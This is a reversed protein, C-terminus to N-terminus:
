AHHALLLLRRRILYVSSVIRRYRDMGIVLRVRPTQNESTERAETPRIALVRDVGKHSRESVLAFIPELRETKQETFM